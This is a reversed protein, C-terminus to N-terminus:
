VLTIGASFNDTPFFYVIPISCFLEFIRCKKPRNVLRVFTTEFDASITKAVRLIQQYIFSFLPNSSYKFENM